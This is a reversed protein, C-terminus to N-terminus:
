DIVFVEKDLVDDMTAVDILPLDSDLNRMIARVGSALTAFNQRTRIAVAIAQEPQQQLPLYMEPKSPVDLGAQKIDRVLGVVTMWPNNSSPSRGIKLKKGIPDV